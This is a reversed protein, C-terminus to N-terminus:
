FRPSDFHFFLLCFFRQVSVVLLNSDMLFRFFLSDVINLKHVRSVHKGATYFTYMYTTYLKKPQSYFVIEFQIYAFITYLLLHEATATKEKSRKLNANKEFTYRKVFRRGLPSFFFVSYMYCIEYNKDIEISKNNDANYNSSM